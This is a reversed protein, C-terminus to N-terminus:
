CGRVQFGDNRIATLHEINMVADNNEDLVGAVTRRLAQAFAKALTGKGVQAPGAFLYAHALRQTEIGSTLLEVAWEHGIVPWM